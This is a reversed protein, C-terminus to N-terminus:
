KLDLGAAFGDWTTGGDETVFTYRSRANAAQNLAPAAGGDWRIGTFWAVARSTGSNDKIRVLTFSFAGSPINSFNFTTIATNQAMIVNNGLSFDITTTSAATVDQKVETYTQINPKLLTYGAMNVNAPKLAGLSVTTLTNDLTGSDPAIVITTVSSYASSVVYGYVTFPTTGTCKVRRGVLYNATQDGVLTFSTSSVYTPTQGLNIYDPAEFWVRVAAMIQRITNNVGSPLMGEPAGNPPASNNSGATTSWLEIGSM